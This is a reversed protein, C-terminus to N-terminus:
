YTSIGYGLSPTCNDVSWIQWRRQEYEIRMVIPFPVQVFGHLPWINGLGLVFLSELVYALNGLQTWPYVGTRWERGVYLEHEYTLLM